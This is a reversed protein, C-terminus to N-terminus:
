KCLRITTSLLGSRLGISSFNQAFLLIASNNVSNTHQNQMDVLPKLVIGANKGGCIKTNSKNQGKFARFLEERNTLFIENNKTYGALLIGDSTQIRDVQIGLLTVEEVSINEPNAIIEKISTGDELVTEQIKPSNLASISRLTQAFDIKHTETRQIATLFFGVGQSDKTLILQSQNEPLNALENLFPSDVVSKMLPLFPDLFDKTTNPLIPTSLYAITDKPIQKFANGTPHVGPVTIDLHDKSAYLFSRHPQTSDVLEGIWRHGPFSIGPIIKPSINLPKLVEEKESLLIIGHGISQTSISQSDLLKQPLQKNGERIAISQSGDNKLFLVFEGSIYPALDSFTLARHSILPVHNTFAEVDTGKQGGVFLRIAMVTNEPAAQYITDRTFWLTSGWSIITIISSVCVVLLWVVWRTRRTTKSSRSM